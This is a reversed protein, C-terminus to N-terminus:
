ARRLTAISITPSYTAMIANAGAATVGNIADILVGADSYVYLRMLNRKKEECSFSYGGKTNNKEHENLPTLQHLDKLRPTNSISM